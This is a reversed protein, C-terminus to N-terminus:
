TDEEKQIMIAVKIPKMVFKKYVCVLYKLMNVGEAKKKGKGDEVPEKGLYLRM